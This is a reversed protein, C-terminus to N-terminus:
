LSEPREWAGLNQLREIIVAAVERGPVDLKRYLSHCADRVKGANVSHMGRQQLEAAIETSSLGLPLYAGVQREFATLEALIDRNKDWGRKYLRDTAAVSLYKGGGAVHRIADVVEEMNSSKFIVGAAGNAIASRLVLETSTHLAENTYVLCRAERWAKIVRRIVEVGNFEGRPYIGSDPLGIDVLSVTPRHRLIAEVGQSGSNASGVIRIDPTRAQLMDQLSEVAIRNDDVYVVTIRDM